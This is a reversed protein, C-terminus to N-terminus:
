KHHNLIAETHITELCVFSRLAQLFILWQPGRKSDSISSTNKFLLMASRMPHLRLFAAMFYTLRPLWTNSVLLKRRGKFISNQEVFFPNRDEQNLLSSGLPWYIEFAFNDLWFKKWFRVFSNTKRDQHDPFVQFKFDFNWTELIEMSDHFFIM